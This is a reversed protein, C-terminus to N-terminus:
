AATATERRASPAWAHLAPRLRTSIAHLATPDTGAARLATHVREFKLILSEPDVDAGAQLAATGTLLGRAHDPSTLLAKAAEGPHTNCDRHAIGLNAEDNSGGLCLPLLHELSASMNLRTERARLLPGLRQKFMRAWPRVAARGAAYAAPDQGPSRARNWRRDFWRRAAAAREEDAGVWAIVEDLDDIATYRALHDDLERAAQPPADVIKLDPDVPKTCIRCIWGDREGVRDRVQPPITVRPTKLALLARAADEAARLVRTADDLSLVEAPM